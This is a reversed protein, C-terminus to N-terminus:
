DQTIRLTSAPAFYERPYGDCVCSEESLTAVYIEPSWDGAATGQPIELSGTWTGDMATGATLVLDATIDEAASGGTRRFRVRVTRIGLYMTYTEVSLDVSLADSGTDGSDPTFSFNRLMPGHLLAATFTASASGGAVSATASKDGYTLATTGPPALTWSGEARGEADTTSQSSAFQGQATAWTVDVGPVPAGDADVVRVVLPEPLPDQSLTFQADGSVIQVAAPQPNPDTGADCAAFVCPLALAVLGRLTFSAM